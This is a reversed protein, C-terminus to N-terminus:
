IIKWGNFRSHNGRPPTTTWPNVSYGSMLLTRPKLRTTRRIDTYQLSGEPARTNRVFVHLNPRSLDSHTQNNMETDARHYIPPRVLIYGVEWVLDAAIPELKRTVRWPYTTYIIPLHITRETQVEGQFVGSRFAMFNGELYLTAGM